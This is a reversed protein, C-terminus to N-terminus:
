GRAKQQSLVVEHRSQVVQDGVPFDVHEVARHARHEVPAADEHVDAEVFQRDPLGVEDAVDVPFVYPGAGFHDLGVGEPRVLELQGLVTQGVFGLSDIGRRGPDGLLGGPRLGGHNAGDPREPNPEFGEAFQGHSVGPLGKGAM